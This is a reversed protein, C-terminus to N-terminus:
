TGRKYIRHMHDNLRHRALAFMWLRFPRKSDYTHGARHISLLINQVVDEVDAHAGLRRIVFGRLIPTITRFLATYAAQDGQRARQM